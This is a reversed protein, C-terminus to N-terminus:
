SPQIIRPAPQQAQQQLEMSRQQMQGFGSLVGEILIALPEHAIYCVMTGPQGTQSNHAGINFAHVLEGALLGKIATRLEPRLADILSDIQQDTM